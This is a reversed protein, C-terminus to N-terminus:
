STPSWERALLGFRIVDHYREGDFHQDRLTGERQFGLKEHFRLSAANFALAEGCVKHLGLAGFAHDLAARGLRGGTGPLAGPATYFGWEAVTPSRTATFAVYGVPVGNEEYVLLQRGPDGAAAAFWRRHEDAGIEHRSYMFDRVAPANRWGRVLDLDAEALPRLRAAPSLPEPM